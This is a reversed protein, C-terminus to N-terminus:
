PSRRRYPKLQVIDVHVGPAVLQRSKWLTGTAPDIWYTNHGEVGPGRLEEEYRVLQRDRGLIAVTEAGGRRLTGTVPIGYRHGDPWDYHRQVTVAGAGAGATRLDIFPNHGEIRMDDLRAALQHTGCVQGGECLFLIHEGSHWSTRGADDNGLVLMGRVRGDDMMLSAYPSAAVQAASPSPDQRGSAVGRVMDIGTQMTVGCGAMLVATLAVLSLRFLALQRRAGIASCPAYSDGRGKPCSLSHM